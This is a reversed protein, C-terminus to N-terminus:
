GGLVLEAHQDGTVARIRAAGTRVGPRHATLWWIGAPLGHLTFEGDGGSYTTPAGRLRDGSGGGGWVQPEASVEAGSVPKGDGDTVRGSLTGTVALPVLLEPIVPAESLDAALVASTADAGRAWVQLPEAPLHAFAFGGGEDAIAERVRRESASVGGRVAVRVTAWPVAAGAATIVRGVLRGSPPVAAAAAPEKPAPALSLRATIVSTAAPPVHVTVHAPVRGPATATVEIDSAALGSLRAAGSSVDVSMIAGGHLDVAGLLEATAGAIPAGAPDAVELAVIAGRGVVLDVGEAPSLRYPGGTQDGAHAWLAYPRGTLGAFAFTGAPDSTTTQPPRSGIVVVAAPVPAGAGDVVRGALRLPGVPDDDYIMAVDSDPPPDAAPRRTEAAAVRPTATSGAPEGGRRQWLWMGVGVAVIGILSALREVM